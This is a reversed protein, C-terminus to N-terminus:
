CAEAMRSKNKGGEFTVANREDSRMVEIRTRSLRNQARVM